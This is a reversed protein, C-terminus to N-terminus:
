SFCYFVSHAYLCCSIRDSDSTLPPIILALTYLEREVTYGDSGENQYFKPKV